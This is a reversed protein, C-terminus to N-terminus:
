QFHCLFRDTVQGRVTSCLRNHRQVKPQMPCGETRLITYELSICQQPKEKGTFPLSSGSKKRLKINISFFWQSKLLREFQM